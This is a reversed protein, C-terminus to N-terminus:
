GLIKKAIDASAKADKAYYDAGIKMAYDETLVAGGVFITCDIGAERVAKITKEMNVVTTTMLASLGLMKAGTEKMAEVVKEVPVDKGLDIVQYGYNELIVKVINKGIDHVDGQVTAIVIKGKKIDADPGPHANMYDKIKDFGAQAATASQILQPLFLTGKEFQIGVEDLAPILINNVIDMADTTVLAEECLRGAEDKLGAMVAGKLDMSGAAQQPAAGKDASGTVVTKVTQGAHRSIYLAGGEDVNTLLHFADVAGTMAANNPNIIPLDLGAQMALTLFTTNVLERNPLGFSINSVGLVTKVGLQEKVMRMAKLTEMVEKQQVSATLTLCDIYIDCRPIGMDDCASVIRKAVEFREEATDPIGSKDMALGVVAAGYKKVLPLIRELVEPEGNVSNVIPKGNYIRLGAEIVSAHSSDLQLPLDIVSQLQKIVKVMTQKEDIDPLGVNVDLIEAGGQVQQLGQTLIYGMNDDRLAQQFKKKGTPNIREGVIRVRDVEVLRSQSCLYSKQPVERKQPSSKDILDRLGRIFDPETGCCGGLITVGCKIFDENARVFEQATITYRGTVLDPLGANAKVILPKDTFQSMRKIFPLIEAPGLSCNIGLADVGLGALTVAASEVCVGAFTRGNEEFTMTSFVALDTNEKAALVAAKIELLDTMTELVILDAGAREGSIMMEKYYKYATEFTLAGNPELMEGIPGIDLAVLTGTGQAAEKAIQIGASILEDPSFRSHALKYHNASFTNAYIVDSGANIYQEHVAKVYEPHTVNLAEPIKGMPAKAKQLMTGMGGDLLLFDRGNMIEEFLM